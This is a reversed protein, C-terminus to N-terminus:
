DKGSLICDSVTMPKSIPISCIVPPLSRLYVGYLTLSTNTGIFTYSRVLLEWGEISGRRRSGYDILLHLAVISFGVM